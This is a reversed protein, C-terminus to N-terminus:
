QDDQRPRAFVLAGEGWGNAMGGVLNMGRDGDWEDMFEDKTSERTGFRAYEWGDVEPDGVRRIQWGDNLLDRPDIGEIAPWPIVKGFLHFEPGGEYSTGHSGESNTWTRTWGITGHDALTEPETAYKALLDRSMRTSESAGHGNSLHTLMEIVDDPLETQENM